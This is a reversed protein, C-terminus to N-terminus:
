RTVSVKGRGEVRASFYRGNEPNRVLVSEGARGPSSAVADFTLRAEGSSVVVRVTEGREVERPSSLMAAIIPEGPKIARLPVRGAVLDTSGIPARGSPFRPGTRSVFQGAEIPKGPALLAAAEIWTQETTVRVKAWVPVSRNQDYVLRGRWIGADTLGSRLFELTGRPVGSQMLDLIEITAEPLAKQLVPLLEERTLPATAREFCVQTFTDEIGNARAIRTLEAATLVRRVGPMPASAVVLAPDLSAFAPNASALHKSTINAGEVAVCARVAVCCMAFAAGIRM